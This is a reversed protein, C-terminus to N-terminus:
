AELELRLMNLANLAALRRVSNRSVSFVFREFRQRRSSEVTIYVLGLPKQETEGSPGAIGTVAIAFDTDARERAATAMARAVQESVAGYREILKRDVGLQIIKAENAYTVWGCTLYESAGPVDTILKAILGGTCSEALSLTKKRRALESGVVQALTQGDRGYVLDGLFDSIKDADEEIMKEADQQSKAAAVIHLTIIGDSVTCNILPNRQRKMLSDLKQAIVSEGTGFCHVKGIIVVQGAALVRLRDAVSELFMPKMEAPPGPLAVILKDQYEAKIGPATGFRNKLAETGAPLYAQTKNIETMKINRKNFFAAIQRLLDDKFQLEIGMFYALGQRTLDDATPGLGGTIIVIDTHSVAQTIADAIMEVDDGVTYGCVVPIGMSLLQASLYPKNTDLSQGALLENGVSIISAKKM